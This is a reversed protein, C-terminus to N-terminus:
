WFKWWSKNIGVYVGDARFEVPYTNIYNGQSVKGKGTELNFEHRHYPCVINGNRCWGQSLDAGAHPCKNQVAFIKEGEKVMCLRKGQVDVKLLFDEHALKDKSFVKVWEM